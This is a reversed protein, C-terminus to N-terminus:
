CALTFYDHGLCMARFNSLVETVVQYLAQCLNVTQRLVGESSGTEMTKKADPLSHSMGLLMAM